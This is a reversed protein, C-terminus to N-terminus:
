QTAEGVFRSAFRQTGMNDVTAAPPEAPPAAPAAPPAPLGAPEPEKAPAALNAPEAPVADIIALPPVNKADLSAVKAKTFWHCEEHCTTKNAKSTEAECPRKGGSGDGSAYYLPWRSRYESCGPCGRCPCTFLM